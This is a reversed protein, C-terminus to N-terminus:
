GALVWYVSARGIGLRSAIEAPGIGEDKLRVIEGAKRRATPTRGKYKGDKKAQAIGERQRELM